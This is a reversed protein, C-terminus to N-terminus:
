FRNRITLMSNMNVDEFPAPYNSTCHFLVVDKTGSEYIWNLAEAIEDLTSMGTSMLIRKGFQSVHRLLPENTIEGSLNKYQMVNLSELLDAADEDFPTSLIM